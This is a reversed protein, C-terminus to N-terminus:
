QGWQLNVELTVNCCTVCGLFVNEEGFFFFSESESVGHEAWNKVYRLSAADETM